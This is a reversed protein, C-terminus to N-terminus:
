FERPRPTPAASKAGKPAASKADKPAASKADTAEKTEASKADKPESAEKTEATKADKAEGAKNKAAGGEKAEKAEEDAEEKEDEEELEIANKAAAAIKADAAGLRSATRAFTVGGQGFCLAGFLLAILWIRRSGMLLAVSAVVIGIEAALQAREYGEAGERHAEIKLDYAEADERAEKMDREYRKALKRLRTVEEADPTLLDALDEVSSAILDKLEATDEDDEHGSPARKNRLTKEIKALEDRKPTLARLIEYDAEAVRFKMTETHFLGVKNGQEVMTSILETRQMGVLAACLALAVGLVAMTVGIARSPGAKGHGHDGGGGGEPGHGEHGAHGVHEARELLESAASM